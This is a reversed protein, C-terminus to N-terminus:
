FDTKTKEKKQQNYKKIPFNLCLKKMWMDLM